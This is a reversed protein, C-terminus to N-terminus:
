TGAQNPLYFRSVALIVRKASATTRTPTVGKGFEIRSIKTFKDMSEIQSIYNGLNHFTSEGEILVTLKEVDGEVNGMSKEPSISSVKVSTREAIGALEEILPALDRDPMFIKKYTEVKAGSDALRRMLPEKERFEKKQVEIVKIKKLAPQIIGSSCILFTLLGVGSVLVIKKNKEPLSNFFEALM